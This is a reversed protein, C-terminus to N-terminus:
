KSPIVPARLMATPIQITNEAVEPFECCLVEQWASRILDCAQQQSILGADRGAEIYGELRFLGAPPVDRGNSYALFIDRLRREITQTFDNANVDM